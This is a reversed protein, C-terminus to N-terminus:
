IDNNGRILFYKALKEPSLGVYDYLECLESPVAFSDDIAAIDFSACRINADGLILDRTIMAAGGNKIGEEVYM